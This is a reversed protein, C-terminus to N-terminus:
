WNERLRCSGAHETLWAKRTRSMQGDIRQIMCINSVMNSTNLRGYKQLVNDMLRQISNILLEVFLLIVCPIVSIVQVLQLFEWQGEQEFPNKKLVLFLHVFISSYWAYDHSCCEHLVQLLLVVSANNNCKWSKFWMHMQSPITFIIQSKM